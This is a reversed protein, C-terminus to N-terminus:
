LLKGLAELTLQQCRAWTSARARTIGRAVHNARQKQPMRAVTLLCDAISATDRPDFYLAVDGGVEPMSSVNSTAVLTGSAMAELIPLGFGEYESPYVLAISHAYNARLVTDNVAPLIKISNNLGMEQITRTEELTFDGPSIVKLDVEQALGSEKFAALLRAFNKHLMRHGVFLFFPKDNSGSPHSGAQFFFDDVGLPTVVIKSADLRPYYNAADRATNESISFVLAAQEVCRKKEAMFRRHGPHDPSFYEPLMEPTMDYLTFVQSATSKVNTYYANFLVKARYILGLCSVIAQNLRLPQKGKWELARIHTAEGYDRTEPSYIVVNQEWSRAAGDIVARFYRKMGRMNMYELNDNLFILGASFTSIRTARTSKL